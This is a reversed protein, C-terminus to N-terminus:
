PLKQIVAAKAPRVITLILARLQEKNAALGALAAYVADESGKGARYTEVAIKAVITARRYELWLEDVKKDIAPTSQGQAYADAYAVMITDVTAATTGLTRYATTEFTACGTFAWVLAIGAILSALFGIKQEKTM